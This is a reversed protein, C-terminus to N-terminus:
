NGWTGVVGCDVGSSGKNCVCKNNVCTGRGMCNRPCYLKGATNCFTLPDPCDVLGNYGKVTMKGESKCTVVTNGVKVQVQTNLGSGVCTYKFCFTSASTKTTTALTGTFCRSGVGRGYAEANGLKASSAASKDECDYNAYPFQYYCGNSRSDSACIGGGRGTAACGRAPGKASCFESFSFGPVSCKQYVFNCGQGQGFFFPEAYTYDPIYWGSGELVNFDFQSVRYGPMVGSTMVDYLFARREFHSGATGAGGEDELPAGPLNSCGYFKRLNSTLPEVDLFSKVVGDVAVNKVVNKLTRGASDIFYPFNSSTFGFAHFMEHITLYTNQEHTMVDGTADKTYALNFLMRAIVPRNSGSSLYCSGANAVWNSAQDNSSSVILYFDTTVGTHLAKPTTFGCISQYATTLKLPSTLPQKVKLAAQFYSVVPPILQYQVYSKFAASGQTLLSFDTTIRINPYNQTALIRGDEDTPLLPREEVPIFEPKEDFHKHGCEAPDADNVHGSTYTIFTFLTLLLVITKM